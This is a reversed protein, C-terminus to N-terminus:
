QGSRVLTQAHLETKGSGLEIRIGCDKEGLGGRRTVGGMLEGGDFYCWGVGVSRLVIAFKVVEAISVWVDLM